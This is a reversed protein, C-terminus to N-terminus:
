IPLFTGFYAVPPMGLPSSIPTILKIDGEQNLLVYESSIAYFNSKFNYRKCFEKWEKWGM